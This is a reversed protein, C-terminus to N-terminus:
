YKEIDIVKVDLNQKMFNRGIKKFREPADSVFYKRRVKRKSSLKINNNLQCIKRSVAQATEIASDILTIDKKVINKFVPYLLPYHTCGLIITDVNKSLLPDLYKKVVTKTVKDKLWNEEILPVLLPCAKGYVKISNASMKKITKEYTRSAITTETGIVGIKKNRTVSVATKCAPKIVGIVPIKVSRKLSDLCVASVTNCAAVILEPSFKNLFRVNQGAFKKITAPSKTGYPLRAMDGFYIINKQPLVNIIEKTVTLGGVGSDFIAIDTKM